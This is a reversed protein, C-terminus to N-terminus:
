LQSGPEHVPGPCVNLDYDTRVLAQMYLATGFSKIGRHRIFEERLLLFLSGPPAVLGCVPGGRPAFGLAVDELKRCPDRHVRGSRNHPHALYQIAEFPSCPEMYDTGIVFPEVRWQRFLDWGCM